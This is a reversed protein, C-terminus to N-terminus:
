DNKQEQIRQSLRRVQGAVVVIFLNIIVSIVAIIAGLFESLIQEREETGPLAKFSDILRFVRVVIVVAMLIVCVFSFFRSFFAHKQLYELKTIPSGALSLSIIGSFIDPVHLTFLVNGIVNQPWLFVVIPILSLIIFLLVVSIRLRTLLAAGQIQETETTAM